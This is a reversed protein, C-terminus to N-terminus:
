HVYFSAAECFLQKAFCSCYDDSVERLISRCKQVLRNEDTYERPSPDAFGAIIFVFQGRSTSDFLDWPFAESSKKPGPSPGGMELTRM